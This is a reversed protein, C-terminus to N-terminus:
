FDCGIQINRPLKSMKRNSFAHIQELPMSRLSTHLNNKVGNLGIPQWCDHMDSTLRLMRSRKEVHSPSAFICLRYWHAINKKSSDMEICIRGWFVIQMLEQRSYNAISSNPIRINFFIYIRKTVVTKIFMGIFIYSRGDTDIFWLAKDDLLDWFHYFHLYMVKEKKFIFSPFSSLKTKQQTWPVWRVFEVFDYEIM